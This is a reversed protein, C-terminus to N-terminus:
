DQAHKSAYLGMYLEAALLSGTITTLSYFPLSSYLGQVMNPGFTRAPNMSAGTMPGFVYALIAVTAGVFFAIPIHSETKVVIWLISGMLVCTIFIEIAVGVTFSIESTIQTPGAGSLMFAAVWAGALQAAIYPALMEKELHGTRAFAISVAPNIHAGSIPQFALIAVTVAVGFALSVLWGPAGLAISGCGVGVMFWTGIFEASIRRWM